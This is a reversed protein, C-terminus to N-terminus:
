LLVFSKSKSCKVPFINLLSGLTQTETMRKMTPTVVNVGHGLSHVHLNLAVMHLFAERVDIGCLM